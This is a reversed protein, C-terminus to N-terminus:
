IDGNPKETPAKKTTKWIAIGNGVYDPDKETKKNKNKFAAVRVSGLISVNLYMDGIELKQTM